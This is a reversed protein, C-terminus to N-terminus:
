VTKSEPGDGMYYYVQPQPVTYGKKTQKTITVTHKKICGAQVLDRLQSQLTKPPINTISSLESTRFAQGAHARLTEEILKKSLYERM